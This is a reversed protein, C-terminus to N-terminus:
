LNIVGSFHSTHFAMATDQKRNNTSTGTRSIKEKTPQLSDEPQCHGFSFGLTSSILSGKENKHFGSTTPFAEPM